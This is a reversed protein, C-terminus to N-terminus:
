DSLKFADMLEKLNIEKRMNELDLYLAINKKKM